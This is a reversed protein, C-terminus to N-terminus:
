GAQILSTRFCYTGLVAYHKVSEWRLFQGDKKDEAEHLDNSSIKLFGASV